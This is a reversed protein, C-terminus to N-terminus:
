QRRQVVEVPGSPDFGTGADLFGERDPLLSTLAFEGLDVAGNVGFAVTPKGTAAHLKQIRATFPGDGIQRAVLLAGDATVALPGAGDLQDPEDM